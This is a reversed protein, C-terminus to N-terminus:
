RQRTEAPDHGFYAMSERSLWEYVAYSMSQKLDTRRWEESQTRIEARRQRRYERKRAWDYLAGVLIIGLAVGIAVKIILDV